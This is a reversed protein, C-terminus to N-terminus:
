EKEASRFGLNYISAITAGTLWGVIFVEVFGMGMEWWPMQIKIISTVDIGHLLSNFFLITGERGIAYMVLVCGLYLIAFTVGWAMGFRKVNIDGMTVEEMEEIKATIM